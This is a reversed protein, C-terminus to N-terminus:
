KKKEPAQAVFLDVAKGASLVANPKPFQDLVTNPLYESNEQYTINGVKLNKGSLIRQADSLSKGIVNPVSLSDLSPGASVIVNIVTGRRVQQGLLSDQAIITGEPFEQSVQVLANGLKLGFRELMFKADRVSHGRLIPVAVLQEGGSVTLYIRRGPKVIQDAVPNQLVVYGEPYRKDPRTESIRPSFGLSDLLRTADAERMAVVNPVQVTGGHNVYWPMFFYNFFLFILFLAVFAKLVFRVFPFSLFQQFFNQESM